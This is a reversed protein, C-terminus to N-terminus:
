TTTHHQLYHNNFPSSLPNISESIYLDSQGAGGPKNSSFILKKGDASIAPHGVSYNENNYSFAHYVVKKLNSLDAFYIKLYNTRM